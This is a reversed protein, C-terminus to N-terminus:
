TRQRGSFMALKQRVQTRNRISNVHDIVDPVGLAGICRARGASGCCCWSRRGSGNAPYPHARIGGRRSNQNIAGFGAQASGRPELQLRSIMLDLDDSPSECVDATAHRKRGPLCHLEVFGQRDVLRGCVKGKRGAVNQRLSWCWTHWITVIRSTNRRPQKMPTGIWGVGKIEIAGSRMRAAPQTSEIEIGTHRKARTRDPEAGRHARLVLNCRSRTGQMFEHLSRELSSLGRGLWFGYRRCRERQRLWARAKWCFPLWEARLGRERAM